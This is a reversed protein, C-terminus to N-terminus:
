PPRRQLRRLGQRALRDEPDLQLASQYATAAQTREGLAAYADGLLRHSLALQPAGAVAREASQVAAEPRQLRLFARTLEALYRVSDPQLHAAQQCQHAALQWEALAALAVCLGGTAQAHEPQQSLVATFAERALAYDPLRLAARGLNMRALTYHPDLALAAQYAAIARGYHGLHLYVNGLDNHLKKERPGIQLATQLMVVADTHRGADAATRALSRHAELDHPRVAVLQRFLPEARAYEKRDFYYVGLNLLGKPSRPYDRLHDQWLTASSHWVQNRQLTLLVLPLLLLVLGGGMAQRARPAPCWHWLRQVLVGCLLFPMVGICYLYRDARQVTFPVINAVPLFFAWVWLVAFASLPKGLPQRWAWVGTLAVVGLGLWVRVDGQLMSVTYLYLNNLHLPAVLAALYEWCIRLMLLATLWPSGGWYGKLSDSEQGGLTTLVVGLFGMGLSPLNRRVGDGLGDGAWSYDYAVFLWPAVVVSPKALVALLYAVWALGRALGRAGPSVAPDRSRIHALFAWLFCLLSLLNKREAIWAVTEVQVPHVVFLVTALSAVRWSAQLRVCLWYVLVGNLAHLLVNTLHYGLPNLGWLRYDLAYSLLTLPIYQWFHFQTWMRWFGSLSFDRILPNETVYVNDDWPGLFEGPLTNVYCVVALIFLALPTLVHARCQVRVLIPQLCAIAKGM